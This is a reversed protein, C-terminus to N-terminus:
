GTQASAVAIMRDVTREWTFNETSYRYGAEGMAALREPTAFARLLADAIEAPDATEVCM